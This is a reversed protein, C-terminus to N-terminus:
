AYHGLHRGGVIHLHGHEQSQMGDFGFNSLLRYGRPCLQAGIESAVRAVHGIDQWLEAQTRHEKTMALLMIPAWDLINKIVIMEDDEYLITGPELGAIIQCFVCYPSTRM